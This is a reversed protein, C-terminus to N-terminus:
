TWVVDTESYKTADLLHRNQCENGLRHVIKYCKYALTLACRYLMAAQM